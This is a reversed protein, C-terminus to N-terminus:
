EFNCPDCSKVEGWRVEDYPPRLEYRCSASSSKRTPKKITPTSDCSTSLTWDIASSCTRSDLSSDRSDISRSSEMLLIMPPDKISTWPRLRQLALAMTSSDLFPPLSLLGRAWLHLFARWGMPMEVDYIINCPRSYIHHVYVIHDSTEIDAVLHERRCSLRDGWHSLRTAKTTAWAM